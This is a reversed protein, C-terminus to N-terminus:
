PWPRFVVTEIKPDRLTPIVANNMLHVATIPAQTREGLNQQHPKFGMVKCDSGVHDM